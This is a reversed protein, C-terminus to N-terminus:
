KFRKSSINVQGNEFMELNAFRGPDLIRGTQEYFEDQHSYSKDLLPKFHEQNHHSFKSIKNANINAENQCGKPKM